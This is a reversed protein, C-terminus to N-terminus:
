RAEQWRVPRGLTEELMARAVAPNPCERVRLSLMRSSNWEQYIFTGNKM